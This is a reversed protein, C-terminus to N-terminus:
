ERRAKEQKMVELPLALSEITVDDDSAPPEPDGGAASTEGGGVSAGGASKPLTKRRERLRESLESFNKDLEADSMAIIQDYTYVVADPAKSQLSRAEKSLEKAKSCGIVFILLVIVPFLRYIM